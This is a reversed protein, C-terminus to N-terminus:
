SMANSSHWPRFSIAVKPYGRSVFFTVYSWIHWQPCATSEVHISGPVASIKVIFCTCFFTVVKSNKASGGELDYLLDSLISLHRNPGICNSWPQWWLQATKSCEYFNIDTTFEMIHGHYLSTCCNKFDSHPYFLYIFNCSHLVPNCNWPNSSNPCHRNFKSKFTCKTVNWGLIFFFFPNIQECGVRFITDLQGRLAHKNNNDHLM